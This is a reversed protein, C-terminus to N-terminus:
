PFQVIYNSNQKNRKVQKNSTSQLKYREIYRFFPIQLNITDQQNYSTAQLKISTDRQQNTTGPALPRSGADQKRTGQM